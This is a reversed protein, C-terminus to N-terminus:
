DIVADEGRWANLAELFSKHSAAEDFDGEKM